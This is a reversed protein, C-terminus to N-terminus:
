SGERTPTPSPFPFSPLPPSHSIRGSLYVIKIKLKLQPYPKERLRYNPISKQRGNPSSSLPSLKCIPRFVLLFFSSDRIKTEFHPVSEPVPGCMVGRVMKVIVGPYRSMCLFQWLRVKVCVFTPTLNAVPVFIWNM